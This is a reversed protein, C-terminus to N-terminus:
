AFSYAWSSEKLPVKPMVPAPVLMRHLEPSSSSPVMSAPATCLVSVPVAPAFAVPLLMEPLDLVSVADRLGGGASRLVALASAAAPVIPAALLYRTTLLM